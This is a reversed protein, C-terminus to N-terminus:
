KRRRKKAPMPAEILGMTQLELEWRHDEAESTFIRQPLQLRKELGILDSYTLANQLWHHAICQDVTLRENMQICILLHM